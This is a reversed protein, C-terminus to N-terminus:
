KFIIKFSLQYLNLIYLFLNLLMLPLIHEMILYFLQIYQCLRIMLHTLYNQFIQYLNHILQMYIRHNLNNHCIIIHILHIIVDNYSLILDVVKIIMFISFLLFMNHQLIHNEYNFLIKSILHILNILVLTNSYLIFHKIFILLLKFDQHM